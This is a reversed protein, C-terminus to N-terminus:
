NRSIDIKGESIIKKLDNLKLKLIKEQVRCKNCTLQFLNTTAPYNKNKGSKWFQYSQLKKGYSPFYRKTWLKNYIQLLTEIGKRAINKILM